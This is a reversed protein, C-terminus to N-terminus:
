VEPYLSDFTTIKYANLSIRKRKRQTQTWEDSHTQTSVDSWLAIWANCLCLRVRFAFTTIFGFMQKIEVIGEKKWNGCLYRLRM